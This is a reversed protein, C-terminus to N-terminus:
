DKAYVLGVKSLQSAEKKASFIFGIVSALLCNLVVFFWFYRVDSQHLCTEFVWGGVLGTFMGGCGTSLRQIGFALAPNKPLRRVVEIDCRLSVISQGITMAVTGILFGLFSNIFFIAFGLAMMGYGGALLGRLNWNSIKKAMLPQIFFITAFNVLMIMGFQDTKSITAMYLGLFSQFFFYLYFSVTSFLAPRGAIKLARPLGQFTTRAQGSVAADAQLTLQHVVALVVFLCAVLDFLISPNYDILVSAVLPGLAMGASLAANSISLFFPKLTDDVSSVIYARNAPLYVASGAAVLFIAPVIVFRYAPSIAMLVFGLTRFSLSFVMSRKLGMRESILAGLIGGGFQVLTSFAVLAGILKPEMHLAQKLFIGLFPTVMFSGFAVISSNIILSQLSRPLDLFFRIKHFILNKM